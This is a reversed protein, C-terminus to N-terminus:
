CDHEVKIHKSKLEKVISSMSICDIKTRHLYLFSLEPLVEILTRYEIPTKSGFDHTILELTSWVYPKSLTLVINEIIQHETSPKSTEPMQQRENSLNKYLNGDLKLTKLHPFIRLNILEVADTLNNDSLDLENLTSNLQQGEDIKTTEFTFGSNELKLQRLFPMQAFAALDIDRIRNEGLLIYEISALTYLSRGINELENRDLTVLRLFQLRDFVVDSLRKLKNQHLYLIEILPFDFAGDEIIEIENRALDLFVLSPLGAFTRRRIIKLQNDNLRLDYIGNLGYFSNDEIKTIENQNLFLEGLKHLPFDNDVLLKTIDTPYAWSQALRAVYSFTTNEIVKLENGTLNLHYLNQANVFDDADLEVLNTAM